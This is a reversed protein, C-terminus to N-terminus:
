TNYKELNNLWRGVKDNRTNENEFLEQAWEIASHIYSGNDYQTKLYIAFEQYKSLHYEKRKDCHYCDSLIDMAEELYPEAESYNKDKNAEFLIIARSNKISFNNPLLNIAKNIDIFAEEYRHCKAKYLAWQQLTYASPDNFYVIQYVEDANNGFLQYFLNSDYARRKFVYYKYIYNPQIERLFHLIMEGYEKTYKRLAVKHTLTAFLGTRLSYYDQDVLDAEILESIYTNVLQIRQKLKDYNLDNFYKFIIDTTLASRHFSLYATLLILEFAETNADKVRELMDHVKNDTIINRVNNSILEFFSYKDNNNKKYAFHSKRILPPIKDFIRKAETSSINDILIKKYITGELLHSSSEFLFDDSTAITRINPCDALLKYACIDEACNDVLITVQKESLCNNCILKAKSETLDNVYYVQSGYKCAIQMLLTTKGSFPLGVIIVNKNKSDLSIDIIKEVWSTMYAIDSLVFYWSTKGSEYFVKDPEVLVSKSTLTPIKYNDWFANPLISDTENTLDDVLTDNISKLLEETNSVIVNVGLDRFYDINSDDPMLQVWVEHKSHELVYDLIKNVSGDHFGYGWFLTPYKLLEGYMMSFLGKNRDDASCLEFKGFVLNSEPLLVDGHLPIYNIAQGDKKTPGYYNVNMLYYRKSNDMVLPVLNDINTTIVNKINILNLADYLTNYDTVRYKERLYAQFETSHNRKLVSSVRELDDSYSKNISFKECIEALLDSAKPLIKGSPSELLSFGAGTFLNIGNKLREYFINENDIKVM